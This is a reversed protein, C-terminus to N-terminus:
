YVYEWPPEKKALPTRKPLWYTQDGHRIVDIPHQYLKSLQEATLMEECTGHCTTGDPFLLLLKNCYRAALNIDHLTMIVAHRESEAALLNMALTQHHLDLHNVPEDLMYIAPAQILLAAIAVRRQEGGSLHQINKDALASLQLAELIRQMIKIDASSHRHASFLAHHPFRADLCYERVTQPFHHSSDQFLIGIQQAIHRTSLSAIPQDDLLLQGKAAAMQGCLTHLLTTKGCGNPGLIAWYDGPAVVFSLDRSLPRTGRAVTLNNITLTTM